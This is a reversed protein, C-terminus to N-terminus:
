DEKLKFLGKDILKQAKSDLQRFGVIRIDLGDFLDRVDELSRLMDREFVYTNQHAEFVSSGHLSEEEHPFPIELQKNPPLEADPDENEYHEGNNGNQAIAKERAEYKKSQEMMEWKEFSNM